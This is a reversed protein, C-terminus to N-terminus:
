VVSNAFIESKFIEESHKRPGYTVRPGRIGWVQELEIQQRTIGMYFIPTIWGLNANTPASINLLHQKQAWLKPELYALLDILPGSFV